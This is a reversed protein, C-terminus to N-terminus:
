QVRDGGPSSNGIGAEIDEWEARRPAERGILALVFALQAIEQAQSSSAQKGLSAYEAAGVAVQLLATERHRLLRFLADTPTATRITITM